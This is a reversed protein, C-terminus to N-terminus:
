VVALEEELRRKEKTRKLANDLEDVVRTAQQIDKARLEGAITEIDRLPDVEGEEHTVDEDPFARVVHYIGDVASIHSLFANGLGAGTSAGKVLGAIDTISIQALVKSKPNFMDCLRTFRKDPVGVRANSPDITCFPYNEAPVNLKSLFNFTTSKGVNPMGVLGMKLTNSARGLIVKKPPEEKKKGGM